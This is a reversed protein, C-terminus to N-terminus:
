KPPNAPDPTKEAPQSPAPTSEVPATPTPSSEATSPVTQSQVVYGKRYTVVPSDFKGKKNPYRVMDGFGDVIEVRLERYEDVTGPANSVYTLTYQNSLLQNIQDYIGPLDPLEFQIGGYPDSNMYGKPAYHRGGSIKALGSLLGDAAKFSMVPTSDGLLRELYDEVGQSTRVSYLSVGGEKVKQELGEKKSNYTTKSFTDLGSTIALIAKKGKFNISEMKGITEKLADYLNVEHFGMPIQLSMIARELEGRETGDGFDVLLNTKMDYSILGVWDQKRLRTPLSYQHCGVLTLASQLNGFLMTQELVQQYYQTDASAPVEQFIPALTPNSELVIALAVPADPNFVLSKVTQPVWKDGQKESVKFNKKALCNEAGQNKQCKPILFGDKTGVSIDLRVENPAAPIPQQPKTEEKKEQQQAPQPAGPKSPAPRSMPGDKSTVPPSDSDERRPPTKTKEGQRSKELKERAIRAAEAQAEGWKTEMAKKFNAEDEKLKQEQQKYSEKCAADKCQKEGNKIRAREQRIKEEFDAKEKSLAASKERLYEKPDAPVLPPPPLPHMDMTRLILDLVSPPIQPVSVTETTQASGNEPQLSASRVSVLSQLIDNLIANTEPDPIGKLLIEKGTYVNRIKDSKEATEWGASDEKFKEAPLDFIKRTGARCRLYLTGDQKYLEWTTPLVEEGFAKKWSDELLILKVEWTKLIQSPTNQIASVGAASPASQARLISPQLFAGILLFTGIM